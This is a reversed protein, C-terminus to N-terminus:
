YDSCEGRRYMAQMRDEEARLYDTRAQVVDRTGLVRVLDTLGVEEAGSRYGIRVLRRVARDRRVASDGVLLGLAFTPGGVLFIAAVNFDLVLCVIVLASVALAAGLSPFWKVVASGVVSAEVPVM